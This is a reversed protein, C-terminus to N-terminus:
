CQFLWKKLLPKCNTLFYSVELTLSETHSRCSSYILAAKNGEAVDVEVLQFGFWFNCLSSFSYFILSYFTFSVLTTFTQLFLLTYFSIQSHLKGVYVIHLEPVYKCVKAIRAPIHSHFISRVCQLELVSYNYRHSCVSVLDWWRWCPILSYGQTM